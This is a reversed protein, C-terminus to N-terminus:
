RVHFITELGRSGKASMHYSARLVSVGPQVVVELFQLPNPHSQQDPGQFGRHQFQRGHWLLNTMPFGAVWMEDWFLGLSVVVLWYGVGMLEGELIGFVRRGVESWMIGALLWDVM